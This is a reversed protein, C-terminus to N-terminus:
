IQEDEPDGQNAVAFLKRTLVVEDHLLVKLLGKQHFAVLEVQADVDQDGGAIRQPDEQVVVAQDPHPCLLVM